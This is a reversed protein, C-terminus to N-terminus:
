QELSSFRDQSLQNKRFVTELPRYITAIGIVCALVGAAIGVFGAKYGAGDKVSGNKSCIEGIMVIVLCIMSSNEPVKGVMFPLGIGLAMMIVTCWSKKCCVIGYIVITTFIIQFFMVGETQSYSVFLNGVSQGNLYAYLQQEIISFVARAGRYVKGGSLLLLIISAAIGSM